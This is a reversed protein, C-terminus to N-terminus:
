GRKIDLWSLSANKQEVGAGFEDSLKETILDDINKIAIISYSIKDILQDIAIKSHCGFSKLILFLKQINRFKLYENRRKLKTRIYFELEIEDNIYNSDTELRKLMTKELLDMSIEASLVLGNINDLLQYEEETLSGNHIKYSLEHEVESWSHMLISAVQVEVNFKSLSYSKCLTDLTPKLKKYLLQDKKSFSIKEINDDPTSTEYLENLDINPDQNNVDVFRVDIHSSEKQDKIYILKNNYISELIKNLKEIYEVTKSHENKYEDEVFAKLKKIAIENIKKFNIKGRFHKARYGLFVKKFGHKKEYTDYNEAIEQNSRPHKKLEYTPELLEDVVEDIKDLQNPYYLAIRLGCLDSLSPHNFLMQNNKHIDESFDNKNIKKEELLKFLKETLSDIEKIRCSVISRIGYQKLLNDCLEKGLNIYQEMDQKQKSFEILFQKLCLGIDETM